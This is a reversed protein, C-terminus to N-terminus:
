LTDALFAELQKAVAEENEGEVTVSITEGCKIGLGMLAMMRTADIAPKGEKEIMVTCGTAKVEKVIIGAPRAHIGSEDKITYNFKQM